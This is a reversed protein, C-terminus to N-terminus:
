SRIYTEELGPNLQTVFAVAGQFNWEHADTFLLIVASIGPGFTASLAAIAFGIRTSVQFVELEQNKAKWM